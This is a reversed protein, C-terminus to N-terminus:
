SDVMKLASELEAKSGIRCVFCRTGGNRFFGYVAHTLARHGAYKPDDASFSGFHNTYETFNTCLKTVNTPVKVRFTELRYPKVCEPDVPVSPAKLGAIQADLEQLARTKKDNAENVARRKDAQSQEAEEIRRLEAAHEQNVAAKREELDRIKRQRGEDVGSASGRATKAAEMPNYKENKVPYEIEDPIIGIFAATSTGVGAIPQQGSPAEEVYVGPASYTLRAM